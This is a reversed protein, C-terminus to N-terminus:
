NTDVFREFKLSSTLVQATRLLECNTCSVFMQVHERVVHRSNKLKLYMGNVIFPRAWLWFLFSIKIKSVSVSVDHIEAKM